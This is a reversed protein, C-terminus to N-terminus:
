SAPLEKMIDVLEAFLKTRTKADLRELQESNRAILDKAEKTCHCCFVEQKLRDAFTDTM